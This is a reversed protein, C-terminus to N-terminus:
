DYFQLVAQREKPTQCDPCVDGEDHVFMWGHEEMPPYITLTRVPVGDVGRVCGSVNVEVTAKKCRDCTLTITGNSRSM